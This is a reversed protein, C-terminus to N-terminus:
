SPDPDQDIARMARHATAMAQEFGAVYAALAAEGHCRFHASAGTVVFCQTAYEPGLRSKGTHLAHHSLRMAECFGETYAEQGAPHCHLSKNEPRAWYSEVIPMLSQVHELPHDRNM